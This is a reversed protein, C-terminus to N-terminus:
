KKGKVKQLIKWNIEKSIPRTEVIEVKEGIKFELGQTAVKYKKTKLYQKQYKKNKKINDVSAILYNKDPMRIVKALLIKKAM